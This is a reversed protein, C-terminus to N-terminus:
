RLAERTAWTVGGLLDRRRQELAEWQEAIEGANVLDHKYARLDHERHKILDAVQDALEAPTMTRSKRMIGDVGIETGDPNYYTYATIDITQFRHGSYFSIYLAKGIGLYDSIRGGTVARNTLTRHKTNITVAKLAELEAETENIRAALKQELHEKTTTM